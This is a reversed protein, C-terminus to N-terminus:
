RSPSGSAWSGRHACRGAYCDDVWTPWTRCGRGDRMRRGPSSDAVCPRSPRGPAPPSLHLRRGTDRARTDPRFAGVGTRRVVGRGVRPRRPRHRGLHRRRAHREHVGRRRARPDRAIPADTGNRRRLAPLVRSEDTDRLRRAAPRVHPSAVRRLPVRRDAPVVVRAGARSRVADDGQRGRPARGRLAHAALRLGPVVPRAPVGADGARAPSDRVGPFVRGDVELFRTAAPPTRAAGGRTCASCPGARLEVGQLASRGARSRPGAPRRGLAPLRNRLPKCRTRGAHRGRRPPRRRAGRGSRDARALERAKRGEGPRAAAAAACPERRRGSRALLPGRELPQQVRSRADHDALLEALDAGGRPPRRNEDAPVHDGLLELGVRVAGREGRACARAPGLEGLRAGCRPRAHDGVLGFGGRHRRACRDRSGCRADESLEGASRAPDRTGGVLAATGFAIASGGSLTAPWGVGAVAVASAAMPRRAAVLLAVALTFGFVACLVLSHMEPNRVPVFPLFVGYFDVVGTGVDRLMPALVREDRFPVLEWPQAGFALWSAALTAPVLTLARVRGSPVLAPAIALAAIALAEGIRRPQELSLWAATVALAAVIAAVLTRAM